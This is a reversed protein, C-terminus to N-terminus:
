KRRKQEVMVVNSTWSAPKKVRGDKTRTPRSEEYPKCCKESCMPGHSGAYYWTTKREVEVIQNSCERCWPRDTLPYKDM